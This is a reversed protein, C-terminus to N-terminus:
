CEGKRVSNKNLKTEGKRLGQRDEVIMDDPAAKYQQKSWGQERGVREIENLNGRVEATYGPHPGLHVTRVPHNEAHTPLYIINNSAHINMGSAKLVPHGSLQLPIIHFKQFGSKGPMTNYTVLGNPDLWMLPNPVYQYLNFEGEM